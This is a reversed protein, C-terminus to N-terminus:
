EVEVNTNTTEILDRLTKINLHAYIETTAVSTHGLLDRVILINAGKQVLNSAFSHRLSHFHISADIQSLRCAQKFIKSVYNGTYKMGNNKKFVFERMEDRLNPIRNNIICSLIQRVANNMPIKRQKKTKSHFGEDGVIILNQALDVNNISLNLIESLRMGTFFAILIINKISKNIVNNCISVLQEENVFAPFTKQKRPLKLRCLCNTEIYGWDVAKNFAAKLNRYYVYTGKPSTRSLLKFFDELKKLNLSSLSTRKDFFSMLHKFSLDVSKVYATSHSEVLFAYYEKAFAQLTIIERSNCLPSANLLIRVREIEEPSSNKIIDLISEAM